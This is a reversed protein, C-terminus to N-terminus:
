KPLSKPSVLPGKNTCLNSFGLLRSQRCVSETNSANNSSADSIRECLGHWLVSRLSSLLQFWTTIVFSSKGRTSKTRLLSSLVLFKFSFVTKPGKGCPICNFSAIFIIRFIKGYRSVQTGFEPLRHKLACSPRHGPTHEPSTPAGSYRRVTRCM